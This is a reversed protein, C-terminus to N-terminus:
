PIKCHRSYWFTAYTDVIYSQIINNHSYVCFNNNYFSKNGINNIFSKIIKVVWLYNVM